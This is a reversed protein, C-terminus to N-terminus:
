TKRLLNLLYIANYDQGIQCIGPSINHVFVENLSNESLRNLMATFIALLTVESLPSLKGGGWENWLFVFMKQTGFFSPLVACTYM